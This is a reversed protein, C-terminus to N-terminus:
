TKKPTDSKYREHKQTLDRRVKICLFRRHQFGGDGEDSVDDPEESM